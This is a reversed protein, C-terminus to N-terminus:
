EAAPPEDPVTLWAPVKGAAPLEIVDLSHIHELQLVEEVAERPPVGDLNLVGVAAGGPADGARGVAMQAINVHHRGFITGVGGIIGPVDDHTFVLLVGDLYAELRYDGLRILRPMKNGFLTGGARYPRGDSTVEATISSSFAGWDSRSEETLEIGRERLLMEANVVNVEEDLRQELLGACFAATLLRTNRKTVEGRCTVKCASAGGTHWQSLFRGLRYAVDLYGRLSRL